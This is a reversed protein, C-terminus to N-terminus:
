KLLINFYKRKFIVNDFWNSAWVRNWELANLYFLIILKTITESFHSKLKQM